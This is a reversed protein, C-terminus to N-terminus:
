TSGDVFTVGIGSKAPISGNITNTGPTVSEFPLIILQNFRSTQKNENPSSNKSM